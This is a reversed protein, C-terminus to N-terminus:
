GGRLCFANGHEREHVHAVIRLVFKEAITNSFFDDIRQRLDFRKPYRRSRGRKCELSLVLVDAFDSALQLYVCHEFAAHAFRVVPQAHGRLEDVNRVAIM